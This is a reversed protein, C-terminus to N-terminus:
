TRPARAAQVLVKVTVNQLDPGFNRIREFFTDSVEFGRAVLLTGKHTRVDQMIVMGPQVTRLAMERGETKGAGAGIHAAFKEILDAGFRSARLRLTQVAVDASHSQTVLSDYELVLGLIRTGMGAPGDGLRALREDTWSLAALIEIVPDLRPINKLLSMAVEPVGSALVKEEPTIREGNYLKEVLQPPLSLYGIQSLMAAAELQWYDRCNLARAFEISSRKIRSARGFAIPSTIALVDILAKICGLLTENLISRESKILRHHMVGAEVAARLQDPPCPKALFRFIQAKNVAAVAADRGPEGTLLIRTTDPYVNMVTHLLLAGDMGPMRMDSVVVAADGIQKLVKLAEDGSLAAHVEYAKRLHLVLGEVVRAEDDVCLIRPLDQTSV